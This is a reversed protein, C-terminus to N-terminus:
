VCMITKIFFLEYNDNGNWWVKFASFASCCQSAASFQPNENRPALQINVSKLRWNELPAIASEAV